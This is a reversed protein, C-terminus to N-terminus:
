TTGADESNNGNDTGEQSNNDNGIQSYDIETRPSLCFGITVSEFPLFQGPVFSIIGHQTSRMMSNNRFSGFNLRSFGSAKIADTYIPGLSEKFYKSYQSEANGLYERYSPTWICDISEYDSMIGHNIPNAGGNGEIWASVQGPDTDYSGLYGATYKRVPTISERLAKPLASFVATNLVERLFSGCWNYSFRVKHGASLIDHMTPVGDGYNGYKMCVFDDWTLGCKDVAYSSANTTDSPTNPGVTNSISIWTSSTGDEGTAVKYMTVTAGPHKVGKSLPLKSVTRSNYATDNAFYFCQQGPIEFEGIVLDKHAGIPYHAGGDQCIVDWDDSINLDGTPADIFDPCVDMNRCVERVSGNTGAGPIPVDKWGVFIKGSQSPIEGKYPAVGFIPVDTATYLSKSMQEDAWFNVTFKSDHDFAASGVRVYVQAWGDPQDPDDAPTWHGNTTVDWQGSKKEEGSDIDYSGSGVNSPASSANNYNATSNTAPKYTMKNTSGSKFRGKIQRILAGFSFFSAGEPVNVECEEIAEGIKQKTTRLYDLKQGVNAEYQDYGKLTSIIDGIKSM